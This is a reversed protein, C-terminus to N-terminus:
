DNPPVPDCSMGLDSEGRDCPAPETGGNTRALLWDIAHSTRAVIITSHDEVPEVCYTVAAGDSKLRDRACTVRESPITGDKGGYLFLIPVKAARGTLHPRDDLYRKMWKNCLSKKPEHTPCEAGAGATGGIAEVFAPDFLDSPDSGMATLGPYSEAWCTEDVFKKVLARKEPRFVDGGHGPGDLLEGHTYHYWLSVANPALYDKFNFMSPLLMIAGWSRQALWLPAYTVAATLTGAVPYTESLAVASLASHGGLSHGYLVFKGSFRAPALAVFAHTGDLLSKGTDSAGAYLPPANGAAGYHGYGPGDPAIVPLGAGALPFVLNEFDPFGGNPARLAPACAAAQGVSGHAVVALPANATPADPLLVIATTHASSKADDGRETRYAIKYVRAGSVFPKGRYGNARAKAELEAKTLYEGRACKLIAGKRAPLVGPDAFVAAETDDCAVAIPDDVTAAPPNASDASCGLWTM